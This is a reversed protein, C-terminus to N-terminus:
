KGTGSEGVVLAMARARGVAEIRQYLDRLGPTKGVLGHFRTREQVPLGSAEMELGHIRMAASSWQLRAYADILLIIRVHSLRDFKTYVDSTPPPDTPFVSQAAEEFLHLSAIVEQMPVGRDALQEGLMFVGRAYADMDKR